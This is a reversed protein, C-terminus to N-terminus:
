VAEFMITARGDDLIQPIAKMAQGVKIDKAKINPIRDMIILGDQVTLKEELGKCSQNV